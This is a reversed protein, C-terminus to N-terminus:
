RVQTDSLIASLYVQKIQLLAEEITTHVTITVRKASRVTLKLGNDVREIEINTLRAPMPIVSPAVTSANVGMQGMADMRHAAAAPLSKVNSLGPLTNMIPSPTASLAEKAAGFIDTISKM